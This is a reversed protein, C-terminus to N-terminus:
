SVPLCFADADATADSFHTRKPTGSRGQRRGSGRERPLVAGCMGGAVCWNGCYLVSPDTPPPSSPLLHPLLHLLSLNLTLNPPLVGFEIRVCESHFCM